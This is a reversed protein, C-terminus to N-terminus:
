VNTMGYFFAVIAIVVIWALAGYKLVKLGNIPRYEDDYDLSM